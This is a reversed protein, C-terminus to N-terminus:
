VITDHKLLGHEAMHKGCIYMIKDGNVVNGTEDVTICRDGDGDFAIGIQADEAVTFKQLQEPHTSGVQDNINLGNPTTAMTAFDANLDAYLKTVLQSTAGNAADM